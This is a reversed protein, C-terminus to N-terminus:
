LRLYRARVVVRVRMVGVHGAGWGAASLGWVGNACGVCLGLLMGCKMENADAGDAGDFSCVGDKNGASNGAGKV